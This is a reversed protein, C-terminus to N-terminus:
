LAPSAQAAIGTAKILSKLPMTPPWDWLFWQSEKYNFHLFGEIVTHLYIAEEHGQGPEKGPFGGGM